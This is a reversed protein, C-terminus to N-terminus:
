GWHDRVFRDRVQHPKPRGHFVVIRAEPPPQRNFWARRRIAQKYSVLWDAPWLTADSICESIWNQDGPYRDIVDLTFRNWVEPHAGPKLWFVSSNYCDYNFDKCIAFETDDRAFGDLSRLIVLDLDLFLIPNQLGWPDPKFLALKQWWGPLQPEEVELINGHVGSPDDTVCHFTYDLSLHRRVMAALRNVYESGYKTGLKVCVVDIM